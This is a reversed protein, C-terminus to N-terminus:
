HYHRIDGDVDKEGLNSVQREGLYSKTSPFMLVNVWFIAHRMQCYRRAQTAIIEKFHFSPM